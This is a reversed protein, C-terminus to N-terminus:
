RRIRGMEQQIEHESISRDSYVHRADLLLFFGWIGSVWAPWVDDSSGTLAWVAWLAGNVLLYLAVNARFERKRKIRRIARSRLQADEAMGAGTDSRAEM